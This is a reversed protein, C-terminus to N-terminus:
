IKGRSSLVKELDETRQTGILFQKNDKTRIFLGTSGKVNYVTGYKTWLRIGWGGVFGYDIVDAKKIDHWKVEKKVFPYFKMSIKESDIRTKLKMVAFLWILGLILVVNFTSFYFGFGIKDIETNFFISIQTILIVLSSVIILIWLWKQDFKQEEEFLVASKNEM